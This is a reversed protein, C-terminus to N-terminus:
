FGQMNFIGVGLSYKEWTDIIIDNMYYRIVHFYLSETDGKSHRSLFTETGYAYFEKVLRKFKNM